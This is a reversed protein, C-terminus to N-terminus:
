QEFSLPEDPATPNVPRGLEDIYFTLALEMQVGLAEGPVLCEDCQYVPLEAGGDVAVVGSAALARKCKPCPVHPFSM